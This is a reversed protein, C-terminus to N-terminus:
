AKNKEIFSELWLKSKENNNFYNKFENALDISDIGMSDMIAGIEILRKTRAKREKEKEKNIIAQKQAKLQKIKEEIDLLKKNQEM